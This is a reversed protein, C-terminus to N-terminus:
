RSLVSGAVFYVKAFNRLLKWEKAMYEPDGLIVIDMLDTYRSIQNRMMERYENMNKYKLYEIDEVYSCTPSSRTNHSMRETSIVKYKFSVQGRNLDIGLLFYKNTLIM